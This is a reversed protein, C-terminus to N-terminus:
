ARRRYPGADPYLDREADAQSSRLRDPAGKSRAWAGSDGLERALFLGLLILFAFLIAASIM